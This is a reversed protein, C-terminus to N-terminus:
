KWYETYHMVDLQDNTPFVYYKLRVTESQIRWFFSITRTEGDNDIRIESHSDIPKGYLGTFQNFLIIFNKISPEVSKCYNCLRDNRFFFNRFKTPQSILHVSIGEPKEDISYGKWGDLIERVEKKTMGNKFGDCDFSQAKSFSSILFFLILLLLTILRKKIGM